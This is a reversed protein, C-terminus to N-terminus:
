VQVDWGMMMLLMDFCSSLSFLFRSAHISASAEAPDQKPAKSESVLEAQERTDGMVVKGPTACAM